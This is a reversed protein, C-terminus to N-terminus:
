ASEKSEIESDLPHETSSKDTSSNITDKNESNREEEESAHKTSAIVEKESGSENTTTEGTSTEDQKDEEAVEEKAEKDEVNVFADYTTPSAFPRKGILEELDSQYIVERKLLEQALIELNEKHHNLLDKTRSYAKDIIAKVEQDIIEATAESYPKGFSYESQKPDYFSVNGIKDNMGYISVINYAVKTVRELDSL